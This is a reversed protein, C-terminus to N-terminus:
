ELASRADEEPDHGHTADGVQIMKGLHKLTLDRLGYRFPLGKHHRYILASDSVKMHILRLAKLDNELGHGVLITSPTMMAVMKRRAEHLDVVANTSSSLLDQEKIGSYRHLSCFYM